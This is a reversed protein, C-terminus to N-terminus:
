APLTNQDNEIDAALIRALVFAIRAARPGGGPCQEWGKKNSGMNRGEFVWVNRCM